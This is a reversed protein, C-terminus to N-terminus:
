VPDIVSLSMVAFRYSCLNQFKPSYKLFIKASGTFLGKRGGLPTAVELNFFAAIFCAVISTQIAVSCVIERFFIIQATVLFLHLDSHLPVNSKRNM